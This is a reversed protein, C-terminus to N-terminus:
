NSKSEVVGPSYSGGRGGEAPIRDSVRSGSEPPTTGAIAEALRVIAEALHALADAVDCSSRTPGARLEEGVVDVLYTSLSSVTVDRGPRVPVIAADPRGHKTILM